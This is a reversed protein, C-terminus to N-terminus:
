KEEEGMLSDHIFRAVRPDHGKEEARNPALTLRRIFSLVLVFSVVGLASLFAKGVSLGEVVGGNPTGVRYPAVQALMSVLLDQFWPALPLLYYPLLSDMVSSLLALNSLAWFLRFAKRDRFALIAGFPLAWVFFNEGIFRFLLLLLLIPILFFAVRLHFDDSHRRRWIWVYVLIMGISM